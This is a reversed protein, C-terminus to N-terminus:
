VLLFILIVYKLNKKKFCAKKKIAAKKDANQACLQLGSSGVSKIKFLVYTNTSCVKSYLGLHAGLLHCHLM